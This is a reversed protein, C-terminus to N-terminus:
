PWSSMTSLPSDMSKKQGSGEGGGEQLVPSMDQSVPFPDQDQMCCVQAPWARAGPVSVLGQPCTGVELKGPDGLASGSGKWHKGDAAQSVELSAEVTELLQEGGSTEVAVLPQCHLHSLGPRM